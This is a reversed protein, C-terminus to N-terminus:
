LKSFMDKLSVVYNYQEKVKQYGRVGIKTRQDNHITYYKAKDLFEDMSHFVVIEQDPVFLEEIEEQYNSMVMGGVSMIDFVRQPVGTEITRLSLNLNIKSSYYIKYPLDEHVPPYVKAGTRATAFEIDSNRTYISTKYNDSAAKLIRCRERQAIAPGLIFVEEIYQKDVDFYELDSAPICPSLTQVLEDPFSNFINKRESWDCAFNDAIQNISSSIEESISANFAEFSAVRYMQGIFSIDTRYKRIDDDTINIRDSYAINAALPRHFVHQLGQAKLRECHKKDFAFVYNEPYLAYKTFLAVQPSDYIWSIYPVGAQHCGEAVNVNFDQTIAVDYGRVESAIQGAVEENIHVLNSIIASRSVDVNMEILGWLINSLVIEDSDYYIARIRSYDM